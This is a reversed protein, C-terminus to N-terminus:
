QQKKSKIMRFIAPQIIYSLLVSSVLGILTCFGVSQIAPHKAFLMSSVTIVLILFSFFIATKHYKLLNLNQKNNLLGDMIFISYDVGIGFIFTSIIINVLNFQKNFIVMTGLVIIWSLLIPMFSVLTYRINGRFNLLLVIFVFLMSIWQLVNFDNNLQELTDTTYYYTDLVLLNPQSAITNCIKNYDSQKNGTSDNSCRVSTFCLYDGNYSQEMLTSLYGEPIIDSEYLADPKYEAKVSNFFTNFAEPRIGAESATEDILKKVLQLKESTWYNKWANIREEQINQPIFLLNTRTYDKVLGEKKLSDLKYDLVGFNNIAEEMTKGSSAFYKQKDGTYTKNRLLNESYSTIDARYGLDHMNADFRTGGTIYYGSCILIIIISSIVLVKNKDYPYNNAKEIISFAKKNIKNKNQDLLQPLYIFSFITTGIISLSAFLGFDRLLETRVFMLGMFSGITTICGLSIPRVQDTLVKEPNSVYKYHTLIHLVYSFAVGLVVAGIGLSLLSFEGKIFYMAALGFVVGFAVPLILLPITNYNRFCVVLIILVLILSATITSKLDSKIQSANYFGSAPTGHYCIKIDPSISNFKEILGNITRFLEAGQGTNTSSYSPTIFAVCVTSDPVFFHGDIIKYGGNSNSSLTKFQQLLLERIGIPDIQILEPYMSGLPSHLDKSNKEMQRSMHQYTLMTDLKSYLCTDIYSPFHNYFYDIVDPFLDDSLSYFINDYLKETTNNKINKCNLSDIFDDCTKIISETSVNNVGEFLLFTKDKIKLNSFALKTNGNEDKSSPLLKNLDEELHIQSAYYGFGIFLVIM